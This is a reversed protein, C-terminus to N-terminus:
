FKYRYVPIDKKGDNIVIAEVEPLKELIKLLNRKTSIRTAEKLSIDYSLIRKNTVLSICGLTFYRNKKINPENKVCLEQLVGLVLKEIKEGSFKQIEEM